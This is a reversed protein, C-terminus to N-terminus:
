ALRVDASKMPNLRVPRVERSRIWVVGFEVEGVQHVCGEVARVHGVRVESFRVQSTGGENTRVMLHCHEAAYHQGVASVGGSVALLLALHLL